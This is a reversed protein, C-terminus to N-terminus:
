SRKREHVTKALRLLRASLKIGGRDAAELNINFRVQNDEKVLLIVTGPDGSGSEGVTLIPLTKIADIAHEARAKDLGGLYAVQCSDDRPIQNLRKVALSRGEVTQGKVIDDLIKGFPDEGVICLTIPSQGNRFAAAPWEVFKTFNFLFAAKLQPESLVQSQAWLPWFLAPALAFVLCIIRGCQRLHARM